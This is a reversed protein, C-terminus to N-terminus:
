LVNDTGRFYLKKDKYPIPEPRSGFYEAGDCYNVIVKTWDHFNPNVTSNTSLIGYPDFSRSIPLIKTTGLETNSRQYCSELTASLNVDGCYGGGQFYVIFSDKNAGSGEHIYLAHPSGDL